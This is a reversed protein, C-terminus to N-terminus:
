ETPRAIDLSGYRDVAVRAGADVVTTASDEEILAPGAFRM